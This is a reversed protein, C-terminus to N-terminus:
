IGGVDAYRRYQYYKPYSDLRVHVWLVGLGSTSIWIRGHTTALMAEAERALVQFLEHQQAVPATRLFSAIHAYCDADSIRCPAILLADGGLNHFVAVTAAAENGDLHEAFATADARMHALSDSEIVACEFPASLAGRTLPPMEWFFAPFATAALEAIFFNRFAEDDRWGALVEGATLTCGRSLIAITEGHLEDIKQRHAKWM